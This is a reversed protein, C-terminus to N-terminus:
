FLRRTLNVLRGRAKSRTGVDTAKLQNQHLHEVASLGSFVYSGWADLMIEKMESECHDFLLSPVRTAKLAKTPPGLHVFCHPTSPSYSPQEMGPRCPSTM